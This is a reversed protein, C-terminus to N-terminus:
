FSLILTHLSSLPLFGVFHTVSVTFSLTIFFHCVSLVFSEYHIFYVHYLIILSLSCLTFHYFFLSQSYRLLAFSLIFIFSYGSLLSMFSNVIYHFLTIFLHGPTHPRHVQGFTLYLPMGLSHADIPRFAM